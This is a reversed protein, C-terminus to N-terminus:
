GAQDVAGGIADAAGARGADDLGYRSRARSGRAPQETAVARRRHRWVNPGSTSCAHGPPQSTSQRFGPRHDDNFQLGRRCHLHIMGIGRPAPSYCLLECPVLGDSSPFVAARFGRSASRFVALRLWTRVHWFESAVWHCCSLRTSATLSDPTYTQLELFGGGAASTTGRVVLGRSARRCGRALPPADALTGARWFHNVRRRFHIKVGPAM